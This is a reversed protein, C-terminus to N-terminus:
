GRSRCCLVLPGRPAGEFSIAFHGLDMDDNWDRVDAGSFLSPEYEFDYGVPAEKPVNGFYEGSLQVLQDHDVAGSAALVMRPATYHTKIYKVIDDASISKINEEPGLITRALPTGVYAVEHLRDFVVEEIQSDVEEMERLIVDREREVAAQACPVCAVIEAQPSVGVVQLM